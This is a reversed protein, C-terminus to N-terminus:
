SSADTIRSAFCWWVAHTVNLVADVRGFAELATGIIAKGGLGRGLGGGAGTVVVVRGDFRLTSLRDCEQVSPSQHSQEATAHRDRTEVSWWKASGYGSSANM